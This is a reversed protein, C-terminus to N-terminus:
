AFRLGFKTQANAKQEITYQRTKCDAGVYFQQHLAIPM